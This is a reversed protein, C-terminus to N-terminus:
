QRRRHLGLHERVLHLRDWHGLTQWDARHHGGRAVATSRITLFGAQRAPVSRFTLGVPEPAALGGMSELPARRNVRDGRDRSRGPQRGLVAQPTQRPDEGSGATIKTGKAGHIFDNSPRFWAAQCGLCNSITTTFSM